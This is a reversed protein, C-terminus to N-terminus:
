GKPCNKLQEKVSKFHELYKAKIENTNDDNAFKLERVVFDPSPALYVTKNEDCWGFNNVNTDPAKGYFAKFASNGLLVVIEPKVLALENKLRTNCARIENDEPKVVQVHEDETAYPRCMVSHTFYCNDQDLGAVNLVKSLVAGEPESPDFVLGSEEEILSPARGLIFVPKSDIVSGKISSTKGLRGFIPYVNTKESRKVGLDCRTCDKYDSYLAELSQKVTDITDEEFNVKPKYMGSYKTTIKGQITCIDDTGEELITLDPISRNLMSELEDKSFSCDRYMSFLYPLKDLSITTLPDYQESKAVSELTGDQIVTLKRKTPFVDHISVTIINHSYKPLFALSLDTTQGVKDNVASPTSLYCEVFFGTVPDKARVPIAKKVWGLRNKWVHYYYIKKLEEEDLKKDKKSVEAM